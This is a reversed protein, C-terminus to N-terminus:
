RGSAVINGHGDVRFAFDPPIVATAEGSTIVAPGRASAGPTLDPWRYFAIRVRRGDFRGPRVAAPRPRSARRVVVAPLRPKGTRGTAVVRVAVVEAAREPDAYGYLAAHRRDFARRYGAALPVTIEYSQGVYRVDVFREIARRRPAFGEHALEEQARAVLPATLAALDRDRLAAAPQLVSASYDRRVDALLMGLASLVGAYRPVIVTRM